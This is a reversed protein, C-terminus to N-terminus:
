LRYVVRTDCLMDHFGRHQEDFALVVYGICLFSTVVRGVTERYLLNWRPAPAGSKDVVRLRMLRKGATTGSLATVAAFYAAFVARRILMLGTYHFFVPQRLAAGTEGRGLLWGALLVPVLAILADIFFAFLRPAFGAPRLEDPQDKAPLEAPPEAVFVMESDPM